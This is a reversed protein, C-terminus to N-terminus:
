RKPRKGFEGLLGKLYIAEKCAHSTSVYEAKATSLAVVEQIKSMWSIPGDALTFFYCSTSIRKELDGAFYSYVYICVEDSSGDFIICYNRTGILYRLVWKM